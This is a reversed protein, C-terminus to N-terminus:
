AHGLQRAIALTRTVCTLVAGVAIAIAAATLTHRSGLWPLEIAGLICAVTLVAMRHQKAMPGRFDQAFGLSGGFVRVYATLAAALAGFWGLWPLGIGYGLAVILLSDAIRDPFENYIQGLASKRGGEVAVMGDLLNCILRAQIALACGVLAWAGPNRALLAAGAAAFAVSLVSIQNPTVRSRALWAATRQAWASSRAAIPRRNDILNEDHSM